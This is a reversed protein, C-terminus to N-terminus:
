FVGLASLVMGLVGIAIVSMIVAFPWPFGAIQYDLFSKGRKQPPTDQKEREVEGPSHNVNPTASVTSHLKFDGSEKGEDHPHDPAHHHHAMNM